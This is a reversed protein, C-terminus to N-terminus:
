DDSGCCPQVVLAKAMQTRGGRLHQALLSVCEQDGAAWAEFIRPHQVMGRPAVVPLRYMQVLYRQVRQWIPELTQRSVETTAPLILAAHFDRHADQFRVPEGVPDLRNMADLAHKAAAVDEDTKVTCARGILATEIILRLDYLGDIEDASLETVRAGHNPISSILGEGELTRLAERVPIHSVKYRNRIDDVVIRSGPELDNALIRSRLAVVLRQTVTTPGGDADGSRARRLDESPTM